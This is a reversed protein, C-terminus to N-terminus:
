SLLLILLPCISLNPVLVLLLMNNRVWSILSSGFFIFHAVISKRDDPSCAWNADTYAILSFNESKQLFLGYYLTGKLYRLVRKVAQWHISTSNQLYRSLKNVIYAIDSRTHTLYQLAGLVSRYITPNAMLTGDHEMM